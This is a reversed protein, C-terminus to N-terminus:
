DKHLVKPHSEHTNKVLFVLSVAYVLGVIKYQMSTGPFSSTCVSKVSILESRPQKQKCEGKSTPLEIASPQDLTPSLDKRPQFAM